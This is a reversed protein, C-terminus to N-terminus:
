LEAGPMGPLVTVGKLRMVESEAAKCRAALLAVDAAIGQGAGDEDETGLAEDLIEQVRFYASRYMDTGAGAGTGDASRAASPGPTPRPPEAPEYTQEFVSAKCPYFENAVGKIVYDGLGATMTGELTVIDIFALDVNEPSYARGGCWEAVQMANRPTVQWAVIEVPLKRWRQPEPPETIGAMEAIRDLM